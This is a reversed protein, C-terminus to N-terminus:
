LISLVLVNESVQFRKKKIQNCKYTHGAIFSKTDKYNISTYSFYFVTFYYIFLYIFRLLYCSAFLKCLKSDNSQYFPEEITDNEEIYRYCNLQKYDTFNLEKEKSRM